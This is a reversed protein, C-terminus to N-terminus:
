DGHLIQKVKNQANTKKKRRLDLVEQVALCSVAAPSDMSTTGPFIQAPNEIPIRM